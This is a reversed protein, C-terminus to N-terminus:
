ERIVFSFVWRKEEAYQDTMKRENYWYMVLIQLTQTHIRQLGEPSKRSPAGMICIMFGMICIM